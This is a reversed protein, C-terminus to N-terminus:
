VKVESTNISNGRLSVLVLSTVRKDRSEFNSNHLIILHSPSVMSGISTM